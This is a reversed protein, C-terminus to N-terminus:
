RDYRTTTCCPPRLQSWRDTTAEQMWHHCIRMVTAQNRRVHQSIAIFSLKCDRNAAIRGRDFEAIQKFSARHRGCPMPLCSVRGGFKSYKLNGIHEEWVSSKRNVRRDGTIHTEAIISIIQM